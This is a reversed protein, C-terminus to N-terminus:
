YWFYTPVRDPDYRLVYGSVGSFAAKGQAVLANALDLDVKYIKGSKMEMSITGQIAGKADATMLVDVWTTEIM